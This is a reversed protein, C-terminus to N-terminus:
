RHRGFGGGGGGGSGGRSGGFSGGGGGNGGRSGFSGSNTNTRPASYTNTNTNPTYTNTRSAGFTGRSTRPTTTTTTTRTRTNGFTSRPTQRTAGYYEVGHRVHATQPYYHTHYGGYWGGYYRPGYWAYWDNWGYRYYPYSWGWGYYWPNYWSGYYGYGYRYPGYWSDYYWPSYWSMSRGANYGAWFEESPSYDDFRSMRSTYRYDDPEIYTSDPYVGAIGDFSITDNGLSDIVQYYSGRRNYEDVSRQSGIYYTERPMGYERETQEALEKTPVFYMDDQASLQLPLGVAIISLMILKKM